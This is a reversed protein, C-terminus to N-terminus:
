SQTGPDKVYSPNLLTQQITNSPMISCTINEKKIKSIMVYPSNDLIIEIDM